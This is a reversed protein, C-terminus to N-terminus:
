LASLKYITQIENIFDRKAIVEILLGHTTFSQLFQPTAGDTSLVVLAYGSPTLHNHLAQAFREVTNQSRWAHDYEDAPQGHYYPPNFGILDFRDETVAEFLDGSLVRVRDDVCNLLTNIKTCRVAEPNIDIATVDACINAATIAGIGSGTGMDLYRMNPQLHILIQKALFASSRFITPNFVDPLVVMPLGNVYELVLQRHRKRYHIAAWVGLVRRYLGRIRRGRM